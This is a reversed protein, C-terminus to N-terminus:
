INERINKVLLKIAKVSLGMIWEPDIKTYPTLYLPENWQMQLDFQGLM